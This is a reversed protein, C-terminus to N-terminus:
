PDNLIEIPILSYGLALLKLEYNVKRIWSIMIMSFITLIGIGTFVYYYYVLTLDSRM